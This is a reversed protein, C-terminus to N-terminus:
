ALGNGASAGLKRPLRSRSPQAYWSAVGGGDLMLLFAGNAVYRRGFVETGTIGGGGGGGCVLFMVSASSNLDRFKLLVGALEPLQLVKASMAEKYTDVTLPLDRV